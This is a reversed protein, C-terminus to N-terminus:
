KSLKASRSLAFESKMQLCVWGPSMVRAQRKIAWKILSEGEPWSAEATIVGPDCYGWFGDRVQKGQSVEKRWLFPKFGSTRNRETDLVLRPHQRM